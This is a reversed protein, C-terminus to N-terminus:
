ISLIKIKTYQPRFGNAKRQRVKAKFKAVRVKDGKVQGVVQAKIATKVAPAGFDVEKGEDDFVALTELEIEAKDDHSLKDVILEENERVVYQKGGTRIVAIKAM